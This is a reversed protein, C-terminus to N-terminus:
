PLQQQQSDKLEGLLQMPEDSPLAFAHSAFLSLLLGIALAHKM